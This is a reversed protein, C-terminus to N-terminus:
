SLANGAAEEPQQGIIRQRELADFEERPLGLLEHLTRWNHQGLDPAPARFGM